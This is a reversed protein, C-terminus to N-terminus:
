NTQIQPAFDWPNTNVLLDLDNGTIASGRDLVIAKGIGDIDVITGVLISKEQPLLAFQVMHVIMITFPQALIQTHNVRWEHEVDQVTQIM